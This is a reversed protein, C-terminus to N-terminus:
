LVLEVLFKVEGDYYEIIDLCGSVGVLMVVIWVVGLVLYRVYCFVLLGGFLRLVVRIVVLLLMLVWLSVVIEVLLCLMIIFYLM